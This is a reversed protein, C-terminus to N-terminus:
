APTCRVMIANPTNTLLRIELPCGILPHPGRRIIAHYALHRFHDASQRRGPAIGWPSDM